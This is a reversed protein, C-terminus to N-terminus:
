SNQNYLITLHIFYPLLLVFLSLGLFPIFAWATSVVVTLVIITIAVTKKYRILKSHDKKLLYITRILRITFILFLLCGVPIVGTFILLAFLLSHFFKEPLEFSLSFFYYDLADINNEYTYKVTNKAIEEQNFESESYYFDPQIGEVIVNINKSYDNGWMNPLESYFGLSLADPRYDKTPIFCNVIVKIESTTYQPLTLNFFIYINSIYWNHEEEIQQYIYDWNDTQM